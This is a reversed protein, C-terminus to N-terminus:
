SSCEGPPQSPLLSCELWLGNTPHNTPPRTPPRLREVDGHHAAHAEPQDSKQSGPARSISTSALNQSVCNKLIHLRFLRPQGHNDKTDRQFWVLVLVMLLDVCICIYIYIHIYTHIYIIYLYIYIYTFKAQSWIRRANKHSAESPFSSPKQSTHKTKYQKAPHHDPPSQKRSRQEVAPTLLIACGQSRMGLRSIGSASRSLTFLASLLPLLVLCSCPTMTQVQGLALGPLQLSSKATGVPEPVNLHAEGRQPDLLQKKLQGTRPALTRSSAHNLHRLEPSSSASRTTSGLGTVEARPTYCNAVALSSSRSLM